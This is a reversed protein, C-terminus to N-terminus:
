RLPLMTHLQKVFENFDNSFKIKFQDGTGRTRNFMRSHYHHHSIDNNHGDPAFGVFATQNLSNTLQVNNSSNSQNYKGIINFLANCIRQETHADGIGHMVQEIIEKYCHNFCQVLSYFSLAVSDCLKQDNDFVLDCIIFQIITHFFSRLYKEIRQSQELNSKMQNALEVLINLATIKTDNSISPFFQYILM